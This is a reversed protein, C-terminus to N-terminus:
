LVEIFMANNRNASMVMERDAGRPERSNNHMTM